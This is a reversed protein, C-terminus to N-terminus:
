KLCNHHVLPIAVSTPIVVAVM